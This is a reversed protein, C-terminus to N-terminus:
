FSALFFLLSFFADGTTNTFCRNSFSAKKVLRDFVFESNRDNVLRALERLFVVLASNVTAETEIEVKEHAANALTSLFFM